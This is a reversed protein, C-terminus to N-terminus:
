YFLWILLITIGGEIILGNIKYLSALLGDCNRHLCHPDNFDAFPLSIYLTYLLGVEANIYQDANDITNPGVSRGQYGHAYRFTPSSRFSTLLSSPFVSSPPSKLFIYTSLPTISKPTQSVSSSQTKRKDKIAWIIYSDFWVMLTMFFIYNM